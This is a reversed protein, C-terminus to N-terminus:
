TVPGADALRGSAPKQGWNLVQKEFDAWTKSWEALPGLAQELLALQEDYASLQAQLAEISRRQTAISDTIAAMQAASFAGPLTPLTPMGLGSAAGGGVRGLDQLRETTARLQGIYEQVFSPIMGFTSHEEDAMSTM